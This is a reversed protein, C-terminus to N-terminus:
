RQWSQGGRGPAGAEPPDPALLAKLAARNQRMAFLGANEQSVQLRAQRAPLPGNLYDIWQGPEALVVVAADAALPIGRLALPTALMPMRNYLAEAVKINVGAGCTIPQIMLDLGQWVQALDAVYGHGHLRRGDGLAASGQGYLHLEVPSTVQPWVNDLFWQLSRRNPWWELNGLFGLRLPEGLPQGEKAAPAYDFSPMVTAIRAEPCHARLAEQDPAAITVIRRLRKLATLEFAKFKAADAALLPGLVPLAAYKAVQQDYLLHEINHSIYLIPAGPPLCELCWLMDAGSIVFLSYATKALASSLRRRFAATRFHNVKAPYKSFPSTLVDYVQRGLRWLRHQQEHVSIEDMILGPDNAMLMQKISERYVHGGHTYRTNKLHSILLGHTM